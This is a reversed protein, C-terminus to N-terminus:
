LTGDRLVAVAAVTAYGRWELAAAPSYSPFGVVWGGDAQQDATLRQRDAAVAQRAIVSRSPADAYPSFDLPHLVEGGGGAVPTPGDTVIWGLLRNLLPSARPVADAVADLFRFAFLLEYAHPAETLADIADLCYTTATALWPHRAVDPHRRALRSAQAALQATMQLSATAPDAGIWHPASGAHDSYPLAFPVGGDPLTHGALWDCLRVPHQSTPDRLEAFVELAHMAGVPQSTTSRLDPELGWGYGGDDNRYGDLAALVGAPSGDGLLAALRRRELPRGHTALFTVAADIDM